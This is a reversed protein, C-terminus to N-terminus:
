LSTWPRLARHVFVLGHAGLVLSLAKLTLVYSRAGLFSARRGTLVAVVAKSGVLRASFFLVFLGAAGWSSNKLETMAPAGITM